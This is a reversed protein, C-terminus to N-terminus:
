DNIEDAGDQGKKKETPLDRARVEARALRIRFEFPAEYIDKSITVNTDNSALVRAGSESEEIVSTLLRSGLWFEYIKRM